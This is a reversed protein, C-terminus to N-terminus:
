NTYLLSVGDTLLVQKEYVPLVVVGSASDPKDVIRIYTALYGDPFRVADRLILLYQDEYAVGVESWARPLGNEEM